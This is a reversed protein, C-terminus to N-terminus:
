FFFSLQTKKDTFGYEAKRSSNVYGILTSLISINDLVIGDSGQTMAEVFSSLSRFNHDASGPFHIHMQIIRDNPPFNDLDIQSSLNDM